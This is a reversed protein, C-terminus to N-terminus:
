VGSVKKKGIRRGDRDERDKRIEQTLTVINESLGGLRNYVKDLASQNPSDQPASYLPRETSPANYEWQQNTINSAITTDDDSINTIETKNTITQNIHSIETEVHGQLDDIRNSVRAEVAELAARVM